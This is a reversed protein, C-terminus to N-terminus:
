ESISDELPTVYCPPTFDSTAINKIANYTACAGGAVGIAITLWCIVRMYMPLTRQPWKPDESSKDVLKMYFYPPFVFTLLTVTSGGVLDLISGFNPLTESIFLLGAVTLSRFLCRWISFTKPIKLLEEFFQNPPNLMIPFASVLHLLLLVEVVIKITGNCLSEVVNNEVTDGLQFYGVAAMPFYVLLLIGMAILAALPFRRRDKMDAQITPFTSAGAFAFMISSFAKFFGEATPSPYVPEWKPNNDHYCSNEDHADQSEKVMIMVCAVVTTILAGIAMPWFDKPTGLWCVPCLVAAMIIMWLCPNLEFGAEHSLNSMFSAIIVLYVCGTGYLTISICVLAIIRGVKGVAKEAITPYPDRCQERFEPFREELMIWCHGLRTGVFVAMVAFFIILALGAPGTGVVSRALALVGSGAMEGSLFLAAVVMSLGHAKVVGSETDEGM